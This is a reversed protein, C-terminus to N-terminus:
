FASNEGGRGKGKDREIVKRSELEKEQREKEQQQKEKDKAQHEKLIEAVRKSKRGKGTKKQVMPTCEMLKENKEVRSQVDFVKEEEKEEVVGEDNNEVDILISWQM